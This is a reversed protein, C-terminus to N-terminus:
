RTEYPNLKEEYETWLRNQDVASQRMFKIFDTFNFRM